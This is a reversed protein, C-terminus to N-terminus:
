FTPFMRLEELKRKKVESGSECSWHNHSVCDYTPQRCKKGEGFHKLVVSYSSVTNSQPSGNSALRGIPNKNVDGLSDQRKEGFYAAHERDVTCLIPHCFQTGQRKDSQKKGKSKQQFFLICCSFPRSFSIIIGNSIIAESRRQIPHMITYIRDIVTNSKLSEKATASFGLNEFDLASGNQLYFTCRHYRLSIDYPM